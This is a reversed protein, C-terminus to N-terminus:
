KRWIGKGFKWCLKIAVFILFVYLIYKLVSLLVVILGLSVDKLTQNIDVVFQKASAIWSDRLEQGDFIKNEYIYVYFNVYQLRDLQEAKARSLSELEASV